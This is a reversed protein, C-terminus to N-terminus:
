PRETGCHNCRGTKYAGNSTWERCQPCRWTDHTSARQYTRPDRREVPYPYPKPERLERDLAQRLTPPM